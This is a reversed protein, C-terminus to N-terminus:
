FRNLLLCETRAPSMYVFLLATFVSQAVVFSFRFYSLVQAFKEVFPLQRPSYIPIYAGSHDLHVMIFASVHLHQAVSKEFPCHTLPVTLPYLTFPRQRLM